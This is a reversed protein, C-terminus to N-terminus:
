LKEVVEPRITVGVAPAMRSRAFSLLPGDLVVVQRVRVVDEELHISHRELEVVVVTARPNTLFRRHAAEGSEESSGPTLVLQRRRASKGCVDAVVLDREGIQERFQVRRLRRLRQGDRGATPRRSVFVRVFRGRRRRRRRRTVVHSVHEVDIEVRERYFQPEDLAFQPSPYTLREERYAERPCVSLEQYYRWQNRNRPDFLSRTSRLPRDLNPVRLFERAAREPIQVVRTTTM